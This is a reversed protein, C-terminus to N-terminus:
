GLSGLRQRRAANLAANSAMTKRKSMKKKPQQEINCVQILTMLKNLHWKAYSEPIQLAIMWYYIIEATVIKRSPRKDDNKITTATMPDELYESIERMNDESLCLFVMPDVNPTLCMCRVYDLSQEETKQKKDLFPTHWKSEWKSLSELSHELDIETDKELFIFCEQKPDWLDGNTAKVTITLPM